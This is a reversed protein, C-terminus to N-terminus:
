IDFRENNFQLDNLVEIDSLSTYDTYKKTKQIFSIYDVDKEIKMYARYEISNKYFNGTQVREYYKERDSPLFKYHRLITNPKIPVNRESPYNRHANLIFDYKDIWILPYKTICPAVIEISATKFLENRGGGKINTTNEYYYEPFFRNYVETIQNRGKLKTSFLADEAFMDIMLSCVRSQRHISLFHTLQAVKKNERGPYDFLEDADVIIYWRNLGEIEIMRNIWIIRRMSTYTEKASYLSIDKQELLYEKTGDTSHDDFFTFAKIGLDYRYYNLFFEIREIENKIVCIVIPDNTSLCNTERLKILEITCQCAERIVSEYSNGFTSMEKLINKFADTGQANDIEKKLQKYIGRDSKHIYVKRIIRNIKRPCKNKLKRIINQM